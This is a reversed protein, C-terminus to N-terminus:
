EPASRSTSNRKGLRSHSKSSAPSVTRVRSKPRAHPHFHCSTTSLLMDPYSLPFSSAITFPTMTFKPCPQQRNYTQDCSPFRSRKTNTNCVITCHLSQPRFCVQHAMYCLRHSRQQEGLNRSSSMLSCHIKAAKFAPVTGQM